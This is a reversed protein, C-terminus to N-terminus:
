TKKSSIKFIFSFSIIIMYCIIILLDNVFVFILNFMRDKKTMGNSFLSLGIRYLHNGKSKIALSEPLCKNPDFKM